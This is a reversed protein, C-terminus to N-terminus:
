NNQIQQRLPRAEPEGLSDSEVEELRYEEPVTEEMSIIGSIRYWKNRVEIACVDDSFCIIQPKDILEEPLMDNFSKVKIALFISVVTPIIMLSFALAKGFVKIAVSDNQPRHTEM